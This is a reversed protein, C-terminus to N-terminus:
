LAAALLKLAQAFFKAVNGGTAAVIAASVLWLVPKALKLVREVTRRVHKLEDVFALLGKANEETAKELAPLKTELLTELVAVREGLVRRAM